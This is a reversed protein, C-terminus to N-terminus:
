LEKVALITNWPLTACKVRSPMNAVNKLILADGLKEKDQEKLDEEKIERRVFKLFIDAIEKAEVVTKGKIKDIMITTSAQSIACGQGMYSANKIINSEKELNLFLIIEDGCSPNLGKQKVNANKIEKKNKTSNAYELIVQTYLEELM